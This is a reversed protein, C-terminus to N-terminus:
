FNYTYGISGQVGSMTTKLDTNNSEVESGGGCQSIGSIPNSGSACNGGTTVNREIPLYRLNGEVTMCHSDTFCFDVGIGGMAGFAGGKFELSNAGSTIEGSLSGYGVGTQMFFHIFSNELAYLRFIPFVTYGTLKYDHDGDSGSGTTSQTFYSPRIILAYNSREYRYIWNAVIEWASGLNKTNATHDSNSTDITSNLDDQSASVTSIGIGMSITGGLSASSGFASRGRSLQANADQILFLTILLASLACLGAKGLLKM